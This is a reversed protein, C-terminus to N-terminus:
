RYQIWPLTAGLRGHRRNINVNECKDQRADCIESSSRVVIRMKRSRGECPGPCLLLPADTILGRLALSRNLGQRELAERSLRLNLMQDSTVKRRRGRADLHLKPHNIHLAGVVASADVVVGHHLAVEMLFNDYAAGQKWGIGFPPLGGKRDWFGRSFVFYDKGTPPHPTCNFTSKVATFPDDGPRGAVDQLNSKGEHGCDERMGVMVVERTPGHAFCGLAALVFDPGLLVDANVFALLDTQAVM